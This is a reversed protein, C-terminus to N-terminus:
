NGFVVVDFAQANVAYHATGPYHGTASVACYDKDGKFSQLNVDNYGPAGACTGTVCYSTDTSFPVLFHIYFVGTTYRTVGAVNFSSYVTPVTTSGDFFVWAKALRPQVAEASLSAIGSLSQWTTLQSYRITNSAVKDTTISGDKVTAQLTRTTPTWTLDVTNTDTANLYTLDCLSTELASFNSNITTLSDGICENEDILKTINCISYPM